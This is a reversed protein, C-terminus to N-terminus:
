RAGFAYHVNVGVERRPTIATVFYGSSGYQAAPLMGQLDQAAFDRSTTEKTAFANKAFLSLEWAGDASRLGAYFNALSYGPVVLGQSQRANQPNYTLLGRLFGNMSDTIPHTYESTITGTWYPNKTVAGNSNCLAIAKGAAAFQDLTQLSPVSCPISANKFHGDSYSASATINWDPTIQFAGDIDIGDVVADGFATFAKQAVVSQLGNDSVYPVPQGPYILNKYTQHYLAVNLRARGDLFTSKAGIEYSKSTEPPPFQLALVDPDLEFNNVGILQNSAVRFSSGTNAYVLLDRSFHHSLSVNYIFHHDKSSDPQEQLIITQYNVLILNHNKADIHRGGVSLETDPGFHATLSAYESLQTNTGETTPNVYFVGAPNFTAASPPLSGFATPFVAGPQTLDNTTSGRQYFVGAVYDLFKGPAADSALRIEHTVAPSSSRLDQYLEVGPIQNGIDQPSHTEIKQFLYSGIYSLHQGAFRSDLQAVVYDQHQTVQNVGDQVSLRDQPTIAPGNYGDGPGSVQTFTNLRRDLHQYTVNANFFDNPEFSLSSRFADTKQSPRTNNNLSRVGDGDNEDHLAAIRVGLVDKIIPVNVAGQINRGHQDTATADIYGGFESVNPKHTTVTIAGSPAAIGRTTGQPGRLVEIQGIDFLSQFLFNSEVPVDNLYFAVTPGGGSVVDFSVGRMSAGTQYGNTASTLTLGPVVASIDQFRQINLKQLTDTSVVDVVQPVEQLSESKRRATVVIEGLTSEEAAAAVPAAAPRSTQAFAGTSMALLSVSALACIRTKM